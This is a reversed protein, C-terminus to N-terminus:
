SDVLCDCDSLLVNTIANLWPETDHTQSMSHNLLPIIKMSAIIECSHVAHFGIFHNHHRSRCYHCIVRRSLLVLKLKISDSLLKNIILKVQCPHNIEFM